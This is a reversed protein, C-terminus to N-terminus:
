HSETIKEIEKRASKNVTYYLFMALPLLLFIFVFLAEFISGDNSFCGTHIVDFEAYTGDPMLMRMAENYKSISCLATERWGPFISDIPGRCLPSVVLASGMITACVLM